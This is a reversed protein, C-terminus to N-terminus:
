RGCWQQECPIGNGDGDMKVGPCNALFYTAEPCSRMQSCHTRGDCRFGSPTAAAEPATGPPTARRKVADSPKENALARQREANLEAVTPPQKRADASPCPSQQYHVSGNITCKYFPAATAAASAFLMLSLWTAAHLISRTMPRPNSRARRDHRM